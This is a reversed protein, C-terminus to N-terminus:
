QYSIGDAFETYTKTQIVTKNGVMVMFYVGGDDKGCGEMFTITFNGLIVNACNRAIDDWQQMISEWTWELFPPLPGNNTLVPIIRFLRLIGTAASEVKAAPCCLQLLREHIQARCITFGESSVEELLQLEM